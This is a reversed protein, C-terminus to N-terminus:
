DVRNEPNLRSPINRTELSLSIVQPFSILCTYVKANNQHFLVKEKGLHLKKEEFWWQILGTFKAYYEGNITRGKQIYDIHIVGHADCFITAM